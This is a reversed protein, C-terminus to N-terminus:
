SACRVDHSAQPRGSGGGLSCCRTFTASLTDLPKTWVPVVQRCPSPIIRPVAAYMDGSCRAALGHVFPGVDPGKAAHQELHQRALAGEM